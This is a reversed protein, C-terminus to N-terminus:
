FESLVEINIADQDRLCIVSNRIKYTKPDGLPAQGTRKVITGSTFGLELLRLRFLRPGTIKIIKVYQSININDLTM